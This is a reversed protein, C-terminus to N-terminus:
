KHEIFIESLEFDILIEQFGSFSLKYFRGKKKTSVFCIFRKKFSFKERLINLDYFISNRILIKRISFYYFSKSIINM